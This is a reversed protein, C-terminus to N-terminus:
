LSAQTKREFSSNRTNAILVRDGGFQRYYDEYREIVRRLAERRVEGDLLLHVIAHRKEVMAECAAPNDECWAVKEQVDSFDQAVPVFHEWAKLHCDFFVEWPYDEKLLVSNTGLQWGFSSGVDKGQISILYKYQLQEAPPVFEKNYRAIVPLDNCLAINGRGGEGQRLGIDFGEADFFRSVFAYRPVTRLHAIFRDDDIKGQQYKQLLKSVNLNGELSSFGRMGGRWFVIPKKDRLAPEAPDPLTCFSRVGIDHFRKLPWLISNATGQLRNYQFTPFPNPKRMADGMKAVIPSRLGHARLEGLLAIYRQAQNVETTETSPNFTLNPKPKWGADSLATCAGFQFNAQTEIFNERDMDFESFLHKTTM